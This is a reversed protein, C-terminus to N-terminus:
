KLLLMRYTQELGDIRYFYVGSGAAARFDGESWEIYNIGPNITVSKEGVIGGLINFVTLKTRVPSELGSYARIITRANFPNPYNSLIEIKGPAPTAEVTGTSPQDLHFDINVASPNDFIDLNIVEPYAQHNFGYLDCAVAYEGPDLGRIMTYGGSANSECYAVPREEGLPYAYIRAGCVPQSHATVRGSISLGLNGYDQTIAETRIGRFSSELSIIEAGQWAETDWYFYPILNAGSFMILYRGSQLNDISFDGNSISVASNVVDGTGYDVAAVTVGGFGQGTQEDSVNGSISLNYSSSLDFPFELDGMIGGDALHLADARSPDLKDDYYIAVPEQDSNCQDCYARLYYTGGALYLVFSGDAETSTGKSNPDDRYDQWQYALIWVNALGQGTEADIARGSIIARGAPELTFSIDSVGDDQVVSVHVAGREDEVGPYYVTGNSTARGLVIYTGPILGDISYDRPFTGELSISKYWGEAPQDIKMATVLGDHVDEGSVDFSGSIWGGRQLFFSVNINQGPTLRIHEAESIMYRGSYFERVYNEKEASLLYEGAPLVIGFKGDYETIVSDYVSGSAAYVHVVAGIIGKNNGQSAVVGSIVGTDGAYTATVSLMAVLVTIRRIANMWNSYYDIAM